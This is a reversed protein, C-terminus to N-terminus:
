LTRKEKKTLIHAHKPVIDNRKDLQQMEKVVADAGAEGFMKLGKKISYQTLATDMLNVNAREQEQPKTAIPMEQLHDYNPKRRPRLGYTHTRPGYNNDM